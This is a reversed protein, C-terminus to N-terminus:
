QVGRAHLGELNCWLTFNSHAIWDPGEFGVRFQMQNDIIWPYLPELFFGTGMDGGVDTLRFDSAGCNPCQLTAAYVAQCYTCIHIPAISCRVTQLSILPSNAYHKNHMWFRFVMSEAIGYIDRPDADSSFM